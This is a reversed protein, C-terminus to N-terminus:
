ARSPGPARSPTAVASSSERARRPSPPLSPMDSAVPAEPSGSPADTSPATQPWPNEAFLQAEAPRTALRRPLFTMIIIKLDLWLSWNEIYYLDYRLRQQISTAGRLGHVQAWGTMGAKVAHRAMYRPIHQKFREVWEPREPRPGVLSMDGRLVNWLQPLEDINWRRLFLGLATARPDEQSGFVPGASEADPPMTRFKLCDFENGDLGLRRQRYIASAGPFELRVLLWVAALVPALLVLGALSAVFDFTRKVLLNTGALPTEKISYMPVGAIEDYYIQTRLLEHLTPVVHVRAAEMEAELFMRELAEPPVEGPTVFLDRVAGNRLAERLSGVHGLIPIGHLSSGVRAPDAVIFGALDYAYQPEFRCRAALRLAVPGTGVIAVRSRNAPDTLLFRLILQQMVIRLLVVSASVLLFAMPYLMRAVDEVRLFYNRTVILVIALASGKLIRRARNFSIIRPHNSYCHALHFAVMWIAASWLLQGRYDLAQVAGPDIGSHFRLWWAMVLGALVGLLDCLVQLRLFGVHRRWSM